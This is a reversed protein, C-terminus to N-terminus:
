KAAETRAKRAERASNKEKARELKEVERELKQIQKSASEAVKGLGKVRSDRSLAKLFDHGREIAAKTETIGTSLESPSLKSYRM